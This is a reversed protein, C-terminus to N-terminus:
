KPTLKKTKALADVLGKEAGALAQTLIRMWNDGKEAYQPFAGTSVKILSGLWYAADVMIDSDEGVDPDRNIFDFCERVVYAQVNEGEEFSEIGLSVSKVMVLVKESTKTNLSGTATLAYAATYSSGFSITAAQDPTIEAGCGCFLSAMITLVLILKM